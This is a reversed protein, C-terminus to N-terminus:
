TKLYALLEERSKEDLEHPEVIRIHPIWYRVIKLIEEDYAVKTQVTLKKDTHKLVTQHPLLERRLFYEAVSSDIELIVSIKEESYWKNNKDNIIAQFENKPTFADETKCLKQIKTFSYTKLEGNEDGVLYWVDNNNVLKYPNVSRKKDNYTFCIRHKLVIALRIIDFELKKNGIDEYAGGKVLLADNVKANLIDALANDDMVTYLKQIGSLLAFDRIDDYSLKGLLYSEMYYQGNQKTIPLFQM